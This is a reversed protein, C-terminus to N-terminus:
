LVKGKFIRKNHVQFDTGNEDLEVIAFGWNWSNIPM